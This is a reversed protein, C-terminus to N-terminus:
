WLYFLPISFIDHCKNHERSINKLWNKSGFNMTKYVAKKTQSKKKLWNTSGFNM